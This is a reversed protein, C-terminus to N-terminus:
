TVRTSSPCGPVCTIPSPMPSLIAQFLCAHHLRHDFRSLRGSLDSHTVSLSPISLRRLRPACLGVLPHRCLRRRCQRGFGHQLRRQRRWRHDLELRDLARGLGHRCGQRDCRPQLPLDAAHGPRPRVRRGADLRRLASSPPADARREGDGAALAAQHAGITGNWCWRGFCDRCAQSREQGGRAVARDAFACALCTSWGEVTDNLTVSRVAASPSPRLNAHTVALGPLSATRPPSRGNMFVSDVQEQEWELQYTSVNSFTSWPYNPVYIVIPTTTNPRAQADCGFFTPRTNLGLNIWSNTNAPMQPFLPDIGLEDTLTQLRRYTTTPASGNPWSYTTDASNDFSLIADVGRIPILLPESFFPVLRTLPTLRNTVLRNSSRSRCFPPGVLPHEPEDPRRRRSHARSLQRGPQDRASLQHLPEPVLCHRQGVQQRRRPDIRRRQRDPERRVLKRAFCLRCQSPTPCPLEVDTASTSDCLAHFPHFLSWCLTSSTGVVFGLNDFGTYCKKDDTSNPTGNDLSTGLYRTPTFAGGSNRSQARSVGGGFGWTGSM